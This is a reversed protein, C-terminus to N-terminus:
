ERSAPPRLDDQRRARVVRPRVGAAPGAPRGGLRFHRAAADGPEGASSRVAHRRHSFREERGGALEPRGPRRRAPCRALLPADPLAGAVRGGDAAAAAHPHKRLRRRLGPPEDAGRHRAGRGARGRPRAVFAQGPRSRRRHGAHRGAARGAAAAPQRAPAADADAAEHRSLHRRRPAQGGRRGRRLGPGRPRHGYGVPNAEHRDGQSRGPGWDALGM